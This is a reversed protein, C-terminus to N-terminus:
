NLKIYFACNIQEIKTDLLGIAMLSFNDVHQEHFYYKCLETPRCNYYFVYHQSRFKPVKFVNRLYGIYM